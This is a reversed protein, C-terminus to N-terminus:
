YWKIDDLLFVSVSRDNLIEQTVHVVMHFRNIIGGGYDQWDYFPVFISGLAQSFLQTMSDSPPM